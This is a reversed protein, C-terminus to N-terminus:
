FGSRIPSGNGHWGGGFGTRWISLVEFKQPPSFAGQYGDADITRVRAYYIGAEPLPFSVQPQQSELHLGTSAFDASRSTEFVFTQGAEGSWSFTMRDDEQAATPAEQPPLVQLPKADTWPGQDVKGDRDALTAVHWYYTGPALDPQAYETASQRARDVLVHSFAADTAIQLRYADGEDASVGAWKFGVADGGANKVKAGPAMIFPPLPHAKLVFPHVAPKGELGNIDYAAVRVFYRGDTLVPFRLTTAEEGAAAQRTEAITDQGAADTSISAHFAQAGPLSLLFRVPLRGQPLDIGEPAVAPPELLAIPDAVKGASALTGFDAAINKGTRDSKARYSPSRRTGAGPVVNVNGELVENYSVAGDVNVRFRTGRVGAVALPTRVEYQSDPLKFPTVQSSVRGKDLTLVTRPQEVFQKVRLLTLQLNSSPPMSFRTGDKLQLTVFGQESTAILTGEPLATGVEAVIPLGDKGLVSVDGHLAAITAFGGREQLLRAPIAIATGIPIVRDNEIHNAHGIEKWHSASGTFRRSLSSLTEREVIRYVIGAGAVEIQGPTGRAAPPHPRTQAQGAGAASLTFILACTTAVATVTPRATRSASSNKNKMHPIGYNNNIVIAIRCAM